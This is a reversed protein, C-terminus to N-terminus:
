VRHGKFLRRPLFARSRHPRRATPRYAHPPKYREASFDDAPSGEHREHGMLVKTNM